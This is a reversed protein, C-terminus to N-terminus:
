VHAFDRRRSGLPSTSLLRHDNSSNGVCCLRTESPPLPPAIRPLPPIGLHSTPTSHTSQPSATTAAFCSQLKQIRLSVARQKDLKEETRGTPAAIHAAIYSSHILVAVFRAFSDARKFSELRGVM